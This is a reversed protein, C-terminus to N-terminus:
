IPAIEVEVGAKFAIATVDKAFAKDLKAAGKEPTIFILKRLQNKPNRRNFVLVKFIDRYFEMHPNKESAKLEYAVREKTDVLDIKENVADHGLGLEAAFRNGLETRVADQWVGCVAQASRTQKSVNSGTTWVRKHAESALAIVLSEIKTM